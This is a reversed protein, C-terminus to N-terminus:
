PIEEVRINDVIVEGFNTVKIGAFGSDLRAQHDYVSLKLNNDVYLRINNGEVEGKIHYWVDSKIPFGAVHGFFVQTNDDRNKFDKSYAYYIIFGGRLWEVEYNEIPFSREKKKSRLFISLKSEPDEPLELIM